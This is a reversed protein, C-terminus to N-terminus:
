RPPQPFVDGRVRGDEGLDYFPEMPPPPEPREYDPRIVNM